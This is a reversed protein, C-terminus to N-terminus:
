STNKSKMLRLTRKQGRTLRWSGLKNLAEKVARSQEQLNRDLMISEPHVRLAMDNIGLLKIGDLRRVRSLAVYGMGEVFAKSLDIIAADLSMGQSKHVTIAWALRLPVQSIEAIVAGQQEIAWSEPTAIVERKHITEIIPYGSDKDFGIVRGLTGNVYGRGFNNRVFMVVADVKLRLDEPAMCGKKLKTVLDRVGRSAMLYQVEEGDIQNLEYTNIADVSRNTTYLQTVKIEIDLDVPKNLRSNLLLKSNEHVQGDRMESLIQLFQKDDQRYQKMLYCIKLDMNNWVQSNVVFKAEPEGEGQVPPLQFFDGSMIVQLGGFPAQNQRIRRCVQDVMDLRYHHLMSVEDVILVKAIRIGEELGNIRRIRAWTEGTIKQDLHIGSWSHITIGNMHTAAIGTSATIAVAINHKRLYDVYKNLVYTKGTGAAGTIFVNSGLKLLKLAEEQTM